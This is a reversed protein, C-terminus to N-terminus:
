YTYGMMDIIPKEKEAIYDICEQNFIDEATVYPVSKNSHKFDIKENIKVASCFNSFENKIDEFKGINEVVIDGKDNTIYEIQTKWVRNNKIKKLLEEAKYQRQFREKTTDSFIKKFRLYPKGPISLYFNVFSVYRHWPNRVITHIYYNQDIVKDFDEHDCMESFTAHQWKRNDGSDSGGFPELYGTDWLSERYSRSATKPIDIKVFKKQTSFLM